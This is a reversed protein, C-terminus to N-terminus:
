AVSIAPHYKLPIRTAFYEFYDGKFGKGDLFGNLITLIYKDLLLLNFLFIPTYLKDWMFSMLIISQWVSIAPFMPSPPM